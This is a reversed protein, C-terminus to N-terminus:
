LVSGRDYKSWLPTDTSFEVFYATKQIMTTSFIFLGENKKKRKETTVIKINRADYKKDSLLYSLSVKCARRNKEQGTCFSTLNKNNIAHGELSSVPGWAGDSKSGKGM